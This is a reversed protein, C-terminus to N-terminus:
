CSPTKAVDREGACPQVDGAVFARRGEATDLLLAGDARLGAFRGAVSGAGDRVVLAAGREPGRAVWHELVTAFGEAGSGRGRWTAWEAQLAGTVAELVDDLAATVGLARLSVVPYPLNPPTHCVNMGIGALVAGDELRELLIGALKADGRMVDNPWKLGTGPGALRDVAAAVAVAVVFALQTALQPGGGPRLVVTAHLNGPPSVWVRGSRGRGAGQEAAVVVTGHGAGASALARAEDMTSGVAGMRHLAGCWETVPSGTVIGQPTRELDM